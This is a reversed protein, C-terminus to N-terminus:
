YNVNNNVSIYLYILNYNKYISSLSITYIIIAIISATIRNLIIQHNSGIIMTSTM